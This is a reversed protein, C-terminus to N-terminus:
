GERETQTGQWCCDTMGEYLIALFPVICVLLEKTSASSIAGTCEACCCEAYRCEVFFPNITVSPM